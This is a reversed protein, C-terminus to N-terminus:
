CNATRVTMWADRELRPWLVAKSTARTVGFGTHVFALKSCVARGTVGSLTERVDDRQMINAIEIQFPRVILLTAIAAVHVVLPKRARAVQADVAVSLVIDM